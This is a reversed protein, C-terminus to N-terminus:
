LELCGRAGVLRGVAHETMRDTGTGGLSPTWPEM